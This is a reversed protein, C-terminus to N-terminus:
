GNEHGRSRRFEELVTPGGPWRESVKERLGLFGRVGRRVDELRGEELLIVEKSTALKALLEAWTRCGLEVKLRKLDKLLDESVGKVLITPV